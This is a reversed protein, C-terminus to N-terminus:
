FRDQQSVDMQMVSRRREYEQDIRKAEKERIQSLERESLKYEPLIYIEDGGAPGSASTNRWVEDYSELQSRLEEIRGHLSAIEETMTVYQAKLDGQTAKINATADNIKEDITTAATWVIVAAGVFVTAVLMSVANTVVSSWNITKQEDAM